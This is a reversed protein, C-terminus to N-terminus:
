SDIPELDAAETPLAGADAAEPDPKETRHSRQHHYGIIFRGQDDLSLVAPFGLDAPLRAVIDDTLREFYTALRPKARRLKKLHAHRLTMLEKFVARPTTVAASFYRDRITANINPQAARQIGELVAFLRGLLYGTNTNDPDLSVAVEMDPSASQRARRNLVAKIVAARLPWVAQEARCREVVRALLTYPYPAGALVAEMVDRALRGRLTDSLRKVDGGVAATGLLRWLTPAQASADLGVIELDDFHELMRNAVGSVTGAHWLRVALRAANPALGLIFFPTEDDVLPRLGKLVSELTQKVPTGDSEQASAVSGGLLHAFEDELPTSQEAWFVFTTDGEVHRHSANEFSLLHNLAAVYAQAARESVPANRGQEWGHSAFADLNFSVLNAGATQAGRVGKISPHLRAPAAREGTVLCWPLDDVDVSTQQQAAVFARVAARECVLGEDGELRFSVNANKEIMGTWGEAARLAAFDGRELFALVAAVGSDARVEEPLGRLRELFAAHRLPVKAAQKETLKPRPAGFVYEPNDWLLNAAINVARKVEAPVVFRRGRKGDGTPILRTFRGDATLEVVWPIEKEQFGPPQIRGDALLREYYAALSQLIM